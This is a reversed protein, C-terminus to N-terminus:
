NFILSSDKSGLQDVILCYKDFLVFITSNIQNSFNQLIFSVRTVHTDAHPCRRRCYSLDLLRIRCSCPHRASSLPMRRKEASEGPGAGTVGGPKLAVVGIDLGSVVAFRLHRRAARPALKRAGGIHVAVPRAMSWAAHRPPTLM